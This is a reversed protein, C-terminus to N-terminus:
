EKPKRSWICDRDTNENCCDDNKKKTFNSRLNKSHSKTVCDREFNSRYISSEHPNECWEVPHNLSKCSKQSENSTSPMSINVRMPHRTFLYLCKEFHALFMSDHFFDLMPTDLSNKVKSICASLTHHSWPHLYFKYRKASRYSLSKLSEECSRMCAKRDKTITGIINVVDHTKALHDLPM